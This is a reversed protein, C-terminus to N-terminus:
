GNIEVEEDDIRVMGSESVTSVAREKNRMYHMVALAFGLLAAAMVSFMSGAYALLM